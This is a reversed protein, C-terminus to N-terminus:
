LSALLFVISLALKQEKSIQLKWVMPAPVVLLAVDHILNPVSIWRYFALRNICTGNITMDWQYTIPQCQFIAVLVESAAWAWIYVIMAHILYRFWKQIQFLRHYLLLIATKETAIVIGYIVETIFLTQAWRSM